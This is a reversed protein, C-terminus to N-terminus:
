PIIHLSFKLKALTQLIRCPFLKMPVIGLSIPKNFYRVTNSKPDFSSDPGIGVSIPLKVEIVIIYTLNPM